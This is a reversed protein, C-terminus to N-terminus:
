EGDEILEVGVYYDKHPPYEMTDKLDLQVLLHLLLDTLEWCEEKLTGDLQRTRIKVKM